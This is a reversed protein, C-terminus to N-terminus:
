ERDRQRFNKTTKIEKHAAKVKQGLRKLYNCDEKLTNYIKEVKKSCYSVGNSQKLYNRFTGQNATTSWFIGCFFSIFVKHITIFDQLLFVRKGNRLFKNGDNPLKALV